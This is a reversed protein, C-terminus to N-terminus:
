IEVQSGLEVVRNTPLRFFEMASEANRLMWAFLKERWIAMGPRESPLLTQRALFFSTDMMKFQAGCKDVLQLAQPVNVDEMFGYHLVLRFFGQGLDALEVRREGDVYPYDEITVTLLIVREHLVKNHKLNHLLAHPVGDSASTMFVATGAVRTASNAASKVFVSVPMAAERLRAIMLQRGRAWTTLLTFAFLGVLLPFWGGDPVKTLNSAFYLADIVFFILLIPVAIWIPWQWVRVVLVTLMCTTIFMTGTVAIGYAAALNSSEGFMLVLVMVMVMLAWNVTPVYIQGLTRASTHAIKFRPMLGLQVAQQIVSFAGTIVAQSAIVTALTALIVLPLRWDESALLFFPNEAASPTHILLAAQGAYNLLLAPFVLFVWAAQIPKRGFHGMDAYLAEAGTLALVVSGLALFALMPDHEVFRAAWIPNVATLIQPYQAISIVGLVALVIFYVTMIPGFFRGILDTGHAQIVFLGILIALAIPLVFPQFGAEVVVLGEVASLVSIAPTIMCDGFFLATALVGLMVLGTSWRGGGTRRQIMALLALSGGEGKNDARLMIFIYKWTVIVLLSWFILSLAGYIHILDLALPHHGVFVEKMAYLPSTGIDGYCVGVAGLALKGLGDKGHDSHAHIVEEPLGHGDVEVNM